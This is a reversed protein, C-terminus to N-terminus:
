KCKYTNKISRMKAMETLFNTMLSVKAKKLIICWKGREGRIVTHTKIKIFKLKTFHAM